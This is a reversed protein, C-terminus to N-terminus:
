SVFEYGLEELPASEPVQNITETAQLYLRLAVEPQQPQIQLILENVVKFLKLQDVKPLVVEPEEAQRAAETEDAKSEEEVGEGTGYNYQELQYIPIEQGLSRMAMERSLKLLAFILAPLTYRM